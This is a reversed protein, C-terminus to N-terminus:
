SDRGFTVTSAAASASFDPLATTSRPEAAAACELATSAEITAGSNGSPATASSVPPRSCSASSAVWSPTTSRIM